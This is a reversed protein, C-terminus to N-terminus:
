TIKIVKGEAVVFVADGKKPKIQSTGTFQGFAPMLAQNNGFYYCPLTLSQRGNGSLRVGPHIHGAFPYKDSPCNEMPEHTFLFPGKEVCVPYVKINARKYHAAAIIDHNGRILEFNVHALSERWQVFIEWESNKDSHFLDGLFCITEPQFDAALRSLININQHIAATPIAIGAKRFHNVKGLHVDALFLLKQEEWFIAKEPLLYLTQNLLQFTTRSSTEVPM